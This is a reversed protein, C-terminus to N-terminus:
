QYNLTITWTGRYIGPTQNANVDLTAGVFLSFAGNSAQQVQYNRPNTTFPQGPNTNGTFLRVRMPAGPGTAFIQNAGVNIRVPRNAQTPKMGAFQAPHHTNGWLTVGGTATRAGTPAVTVSGAINSAVVVGFNLDDVKYFSGPQVISTEARTPETDARAPGIVAAAMAATLVFRACWFRFKAGRM